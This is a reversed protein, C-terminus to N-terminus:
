PYTRKILLEEKYIGLSSSSCARDLACLHWHVATLNRQGVVQRKGAQITRRPGQVTTKWSLSDVTCVRSREKNYAKKIFFISYDPLWLGRAM